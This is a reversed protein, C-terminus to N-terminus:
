LPKLWLVESGNPAYHIKGDHREAEGHVSQPGGFDGGKISFYWRFCDAFDAMARYTVFPVRTYVDTNKKTIKMDLLKAGLDSLIVVRHGDAATMTLARFPLEGRYVGAYEASTSALIGTPPPVDYRINSTACANVM